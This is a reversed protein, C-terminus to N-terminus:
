FTGIVVINKPKLCAIKGFRAILNSPIASHVQFVFCSTPIPGYVQATKRHGRRDQKYVAMWVHPKPVAM